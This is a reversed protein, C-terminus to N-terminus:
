TWLRLSHAVDNYLLHITIYMQVDTIRCCHHGRSSSKVDPINRHYPLCICIKTCSFKVVETMFLLYIKQPHVFYITCLFVLSFLYPQFLHIHLIKEKFIFIDWLCSYPYLLPFIRTDAAFSSTGISSLHHM